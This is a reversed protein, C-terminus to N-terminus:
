VAFGEGREAESARKPRATESEPRRRLAELCLRVMRVPEPEILNPLQERRHSRPCFRLRTRHGRTQQRESRVQIAARLEIAGCRGAVHRHQKQRSRGYVFLAGGQRRTQAMKRRRGQHEELTAPVF